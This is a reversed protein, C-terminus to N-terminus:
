ILSICFEFNILNDENDELHQLYYIIQRIISKKIDNMGVIMKLEELPEILDNM